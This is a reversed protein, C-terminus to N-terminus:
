VRKYCITMDTTKKDKLANQNAQRASSHLGFDCNYGWRNAFHINNVDDRMNPAVNWCSVGNDNLKNLCNVIVPSLWGKVWDDYTNFKIYSQTNEDSYIELDYYPPSTLVLDAFIDYNPINEAIENHIEVSDAIDLFEVLKMLNEYTETCPEFGIYKSGSAVTGLMRGGWGCCPDLVTQPKYYDCIMKALHPRFMTNKTLGYCFYIGRRFESLYPTSHSSRNWRIVKQLDKANWYDTFKEGKKNKIEFFNPFFFECLEMGKRCQSATYFSKNNYEKLNKWAKKLKDEPYDYHYDVKSLEEAFWPM